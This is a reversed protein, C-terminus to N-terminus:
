GSEGHNKWVFAELLRILMDEKVKGKFQTDTALTRFTDNKVSTSRDAVAGGHSIRPHVSPHVPVRISPHCRGLPVLPATPFVGRSVRRASTAPVWPYTDSTIRRISVRSKSCSSGYERDSRHGETSCRRTLPTVRRLM